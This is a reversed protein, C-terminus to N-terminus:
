KIEANNTRVIVVVQERNTWLTVNMVDNIWVM